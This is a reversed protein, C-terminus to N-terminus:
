GRAEHEAVREVLKTIQQSTLSDPQCLVAPTKLRSAQAFLEPAPTLTAAVSYGLQEQAEALPMQSESRVRNNLVAAIHNKNTGLEILDDILARTHM